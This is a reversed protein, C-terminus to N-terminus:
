LSIAFPIKVVGKVGESNNDKLEVKLLYKGVKLSKGRIDVFKVPQFFYPNKMVFPKFVSIRKKGKYISIEAGINWGSTMKAGKIFFALIPSVEYLFTNDRDLYPFFEQRMVGIRFANRVVTFRKEAKSLMNVKKFFLPKSFTLSGSTRVIEKLTLKPVNIETVMTGDESNDYANIDVLINYKGPKLILGFSFYNTDKEGLFPIPARFRQIIKGDKEVRMYLDFYHDPANFVPPKPPSFKIMPIKKEPDKIERNKLEIRKNELEISRKRELIFFEYKKKELNFEKQGKEKLLEFKPLLDASFLYNVYVSNQLVYFYSDIYKLSYIGNSTMTKLLADLSVSIREPIKERNELKVDGNSRSFLGTLFCIMMLVILVKKIM